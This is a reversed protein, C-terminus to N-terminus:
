CWVRMGEVGLEGVVGGGYRADVKGHLLDM